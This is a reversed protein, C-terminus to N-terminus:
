KSCFESKDALIAWDCNLEPCNHFYKSLDTGGNLLLVQLNIPCCSEVFGSLPSDYCQWIEAGTHSIKAVCHHQFPFFRRFWFAGCLFFDMLVYENIFFSEVSTRKHDRGWTGLVM